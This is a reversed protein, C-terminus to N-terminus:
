FSHYSANGLNLRNKIEEHLCNEETGVHENKTTYRNDHKGSSGLNMPEFGALPSSNKLAIFIQLMVEELSSTFGDVV